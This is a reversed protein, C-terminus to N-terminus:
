RNTKNGDFNFIAARSLVGNVQIRTLHTLYIEKNHFCVRLNLASVFKHIAHFTHM